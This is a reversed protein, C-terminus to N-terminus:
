LQVDISPVSAAASCDVGSVAVDVGASIAPIGGGAVSNSSGAGGSATAGGVQLSHKIMTKLYDMNAKMIAKNEASRHKRKLDELDEKSMHPDIIEIDELMEMSKELEELEEEGFESIMENLEAMMEDTSDSKGANLDEKAERLMDRREDFIDDEKKDIKDEEISVAMSNMGHGADKMKDNKEDSRRTNDAMEELELHHKKRKAVIEMRRAHTLAMQLEEADGDGSLIKRKLELVKRKAALVAQGASMSTKASQIKQSVEKYNYVTPKEIKDEESKSSAGSLESFVDTRDTLAAQYPDADRAMTRNLSRILERMKLSKNKKQEEADEVIESSRSLGSFVYADKGNGSTGSKCAYSYAPEHRAGMPLYSFRSYMSINM